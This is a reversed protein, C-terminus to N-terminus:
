KIALRAAALPGDGGAAPPAAETVFLRGSEVKGTAALFESVRRAREGALLKLEEDSVALAQRAAQRMEELGPQPQPSRLAPNAAVAAEYLTSLYTPMEEATVTVEATSDAGGGVARIKAAKIERDLRADQLAARDAESDYSGAIELNLAPRDYLAQALLTLKASEPESLGAQGPAFLVVDLQADSGALAGLMAFPATAAKVIINTLVQVVLPLIRFEPDALNGQLPVDLKIQANRDTLLAIALKIPLDPADPSDSKDGLTFQDFLIRNQAALKGQDIRYTLDLNLKGKEIAYGIYKGSYPTFAPLEIGRCGVTTDLFLRTRDADPRVKAAINVAAQRDLVAQFAIAATRDGGPALGSVTAAMESLEVAYNPKISRDLFSFAGDTVRVTELAIAPPPGAPPPADPPPADQAAPAPKETKLVATLNVAKDEGIIIAFAPATLSVEPITVAVADAVKADLGTVALAEWKLFPERYIPDVSAFPALRVDGAFGIAPKGGPPM